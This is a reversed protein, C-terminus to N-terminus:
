GDSRKLFSFNVYIFTTETKSLCQACVSASARVRDFPKFITWHFLHAAFRSFLSLLLLLHFCMVSLCM